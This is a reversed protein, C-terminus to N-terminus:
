KDILPPVIKFLRFINDLKPIPVLALLIYLNVTLPAIYEDVLIKQM